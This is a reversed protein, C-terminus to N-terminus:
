LTVGVRSPLATDGGCRTKAHGELVGGMGSIRKIHAGDMHDHDVGLQVAREVIRLVLPKM